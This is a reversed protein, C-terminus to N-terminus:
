RPLKSMASSAVVSRTDVVLSLIRDNNAEMAAAAVRLATVMEATTATEKENEMIMGDTVMRRKVLLMPIVYPHLM